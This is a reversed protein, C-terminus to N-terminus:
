LSDPFIKSILLLWVFPCSLNRCAFRTRATPSACFWTLGNPDDHLLRADMGRIGHLLPLAACLFVQDSGAMVECPVSLDPNTTAGPWECIM